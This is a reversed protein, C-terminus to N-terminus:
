TQRLKQDAKSQHKRKARAAEGHPAAQAGM